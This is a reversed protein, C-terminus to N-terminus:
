QERKEGYKDRMMLLIEAASSMHFVEEPKLKAPGQLDKQLAELIKRACVEAQSSLKKRFILAYDEM